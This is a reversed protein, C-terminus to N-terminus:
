RAARRLASRVATSDAGGAYTEKEDKDQDMNGCAVLRAKLKMPQKAKKKKTAVLKSPLIKVKYKGEEQIKKM